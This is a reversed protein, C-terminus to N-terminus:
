KNIQGFIDPRACGPLLIPDVNPNPQRTLEPIAGRCHGGLLDEEDPTGQAYRRM